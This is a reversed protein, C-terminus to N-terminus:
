FDADSNGEDQIFNEEKIEDNQRILITIKKEAEEIQQNCKKSIQIGEEFLKMSEDLSINEEKELKSTIEELKTLLEEFSEQKKM